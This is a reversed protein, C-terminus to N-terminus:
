TRIKFQNRLIFKYFGFTKLYQREKSMKYNMCDNKTEYWTFYEDDTIEEPNKDRITKNIKLYKEVKRAFDIFINYHSQMVDAKCDDDKCNDLGFIKITKEAREFKFSNTDLKSNPKINILYRHNTDITFELEFFDYINDYCPNVLLAQEDEIEDHNTAKNGRIPFHSGKYKARNCLTCMLIYNKYCCKLFPYKSHPRFHDVDDDPNVSHECIPCKQNTFEIFTKKFLTHKCETIKSCDDDLKKEFEVIKEKFEEDEYIKRLDIM